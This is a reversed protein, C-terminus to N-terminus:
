KHYYYIDVDNRNKLYGNDIAWNLYFLTALTDPRDQNFARGIDKGTIKRLAVLRCYNPSKGYFKRHHSIRPDLIKTLLPVIASTDKLKGLKLCAINIKNKDDSLLDAKYQESKNDCSVIVIVLISFTTLLSALPM